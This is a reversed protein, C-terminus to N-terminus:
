KIKVEIQKVAAAELKPLTVLLMGEKSEATINKSDIFPPLTFSRLFQGYCRELRHYTQGDSDMTKREGTITLVNNDFTVCLDKKNVEPLELKIVLNKSTEYIDCPPAWTTFAGTEENFNTQASVLGFKGDLFRNLNNQLIRSRAPATATNIM